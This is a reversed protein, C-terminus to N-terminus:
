RVTEQMLPAPTRASGGLPGRDLLMLALAAVFAAPVLTWIIEAHIAVSRDENAQRRAKLLRLLIRMQVAFFAIGSLWFIAPEM